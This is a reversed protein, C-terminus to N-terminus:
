PIVSRCIGERFIDGQAMRSLFGANEASHRQSFIIVPDIVEQQIVRIAKVAHGVALCKILGHDFHHIIQNIVPKFDIQAAPRIAKHASNHEFPHDINGDVVDDAHIYRQFGGSLIAGVTQIVNEAPIIQDDTGIFKEDFVQLHVFDSLDHLLDAHLRHKGKAVAATIDAHM